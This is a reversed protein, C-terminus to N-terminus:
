PMERVFTVIADVAEAEDLIPAHGIRPLETVMLDPKAKRMAEVGEPALIDSIAGRLLLTPRQALAAFAAMLDPAPGTPATSFAEAIAPDYAFAIRGESNERAVRRAFAEWFANDADPFATGQTEKIAATIAEWSEFPGSKGVYGIIRALGAPDLVPGIDNLIAAAVREPAREATLMTMMGGMSTGLFIARPIGLADLVELVDGVYVDPRYRSADTDYDSLGRGRTDLALVRRGAAALHPAIGEFDASNRTLGHLCLVPLTKADTKPAYDRAYLTLGDSVRIRHEGYDAM